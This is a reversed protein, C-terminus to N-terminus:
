RSAPETARDPLRIRNVHRVHDDVAETPRIPRRLPAVVRIRTGAQPAAEITLQGGLPRVRERMSVLGLGPQHNNGAVDFGRGKDSVCLALRDGDSTLEVSATAVGSHKVVNHLAEQVVRYLCLRLDREVHAPLNRCECHVQLRHRASFERCLGQVAGELGVFDITAPHLERSLHHMDSSVQAAAEALATLQRRGNASVEAGGGLQEISIQLLAMQQGLDDHLERAIRGREREQAEILRSSLEVGHVLLREREVTLIALSLLSIAMLPLFLQISVVADGAPQGAFVGTGRVAAIMSVIGVLAIANAAGFPRLRVAAWILFPVPLYTFILFHSDHSVVFGFFLAGALGVFVLVLEGPPKHPRYARTCWYLLTPTVIVQALVDGLFWQSSARWVPDGLAFRAPAALLASLAPVAAAAIGLFIMFERLTQLRVPRRVFHHLLWAAALGKISDNALATVQFWLPTGPVAGVLLRLPWIAAVFVWWQTRPVLLLACLLVSDPLWFPSPVALSGYAHESLVSALGYIAAFVALARWGGADAPETSEHM